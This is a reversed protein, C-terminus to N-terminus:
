RFSALLDALTRHLPLCPVWGTLTETRRPDGTQTAVDTSEPAPGTEEIRAAVAAATLLGDVVAGIAVARGSAVNYVDGSRGHELIAAYARVADRVDTFDRATARHRIRVVPDQTGAAIRAVQAAVTSTLAGKPEGAGVLNFPRARVVHLGHVSAFRVAVLEASAKGVGYMTVPAMPEHEAIPGVGEKRHGYVASTSVVLVRSAPAHRRVADLLNYTGVPDIRLWDREDVGDPLNAPTRAALHFIRDPASVRVATAVADPDGLDGVLSVTRGTEDPRRSFGYLAAVSEGQLFRALHRGTFGSAGTILVRM